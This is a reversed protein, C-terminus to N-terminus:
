NVTVKIIGQNGKNQKKAVARENFYIPLKYKQDSSKKDFLFEVKSPQERQQDTTADAIPRPSVEIWITDRVTVTDPSQTLLKEILLTDRQEIIRDIYKDRYSIIIKTESTPTSPEESLNEIYRELRQNSLAMQSLSDKTVQWAEQLQERATNQHAIKRQMVGFLIGLLMLLIGVAAKWATTNSSAPRELSQWIAEKAAQEMQNLELDDNQILDRFQKDLKKNNM